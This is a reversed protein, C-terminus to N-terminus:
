PSIYVDVYTYTSRAQRTRVKFVKSSGGRGVCELKTYRSNRVMVTNEDERVRRRQQQSAQQQQQQQALQQQQQRQQEQEAAHLALQQQQQQQRKRQQERQQDQQRPAPVTRAANGACEPAM